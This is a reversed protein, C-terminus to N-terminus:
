PEAARESAVGSKTQPAAGLMAHPQPTVAHHHTSWAHTCEAGFFFILASYYVWVLLVVISGAAGYASSISAQGIYYGIVTKGLTFLVAAIGGGLWVDRWRIQADPVYKFLLAFLGTLGVFSVALELLRALFAEGPGQLMGAVAALATSVVLSVLLLFALACVLALSFLRQKLLTWLSAWVGGTPAPQVEWILNLTAQLEAFVATAGLLLTMLGIVTALMGSHPTPTALIAEVLQRGAPGMLGELQMALQRAVQQRELVMGVLGIVLLVLPALSLATYFALSAALRLCNDQWWDSVAQVLVTWLMTTRM